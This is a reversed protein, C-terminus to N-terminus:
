NYDVIFHFPNDKEFFHSHFLAPPISTRGGVDTSKQVLHGGYGLLRCM